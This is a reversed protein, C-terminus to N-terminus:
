PIRDNRPAFEIVREVLELATMIGPHRPHDRRLRRLAARVARAARLAADIERQREHAPGPAASRAIKLAIAASASRLTRATAPRSEEHEDAIPYTVRALEVATRYSELKEFRFSPMPEEREAIQSAPLTM